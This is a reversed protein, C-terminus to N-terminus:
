STHGPSCDRGHIIVVDTTLGPDEHINEATSQLLVVRLAVSHTHHHKAHMTDAKMGQIKHISSFASMAAVCDGKCCVLIHRPSWPLVSRLNVEVIV